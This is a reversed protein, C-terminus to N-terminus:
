IQTIKEALGNDSNQINSIQSITTQISNEYQLKLNERVEFNIAIEAQELKDKLKRFDM